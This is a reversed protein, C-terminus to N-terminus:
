DIVTSSESAVCVILWYSSCSSRAARRRLWSRCDRVCSLALSWVFPDLGVRTVFVAYQLFGGIIAALCGAKKM